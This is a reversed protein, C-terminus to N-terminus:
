LSSVGVLEISETLVALLKSDNGAESLMEELENVVGWDGWTLGTSRIVSILCGLGDDLVALISEGVPDGGVGLDRGVEGGAGACERLAAAVVDLAIGLTVVKRTLVLWQVVTFRAQPDWGASVLTVLEVIILFFLLLDSRGGNLVAGDVALCSAASIM